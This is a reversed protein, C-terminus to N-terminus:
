PLPGGALAVVVGIAGAGVLVSVVGLRAALLAALALVVLQWGEELARALPVAAGAIAGIAAPGAGDLFGRVGANARLRDFREAGILIFSFSPAFAVAAALLGGGVGAAAYGVAAVTHVVPGPTVQGLAVANLFQADTMWRYTEVADHQMLPIIV